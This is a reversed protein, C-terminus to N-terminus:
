GQINPGPVLCGAPMHPQPRQPSSAVVPVVAILCGLGLAVVGGVSEGRTVKSILWKRVKVRLGGDGEENCVCVCVRM